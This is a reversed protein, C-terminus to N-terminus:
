PQASEDWLHRRYTRPSLGTWSKFARSFASADEFGLVHAIASNALQSRAMLEMARERRVETLVASFSTGEEDLRRQLTRTTLHVSAVVESLSPIPTAARLRSRLVEAYRLPEDMVAALRQCQNDFFRYSMANAQPPARDWVSRAFRIQNAGAGFNVACGFFAEYVDVAPPPLHTFHVSLPTLDTGLIQRLLTLTSTTDREVFFAACDGVEANEEFSVYEEDGDRWFSLEICGWALMPHILITHFMERANPACSAALGLVGFQVLHYGQGVLLGAHPLKLATLALRTFRLEKEFPIHFSPEESAFRPIDAAELLPQVAHGHCELVTIVPALGFALRVPRLMTSGFLYEPQRNLPPRLNGRGQTAMRMERHKDYYAFFNVCDTM